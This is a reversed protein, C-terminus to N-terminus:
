RRMRLLAADALRDVERLVVTLTAIPSLPMILTVRELLRRPATLPQYGHRACPAVLPSWTEATRCRRSRRLGTLRDVRPLRVASGNVAADVRDLARQRFGTGATRRGAQNEFRYDRLIGPVDVPTERVERACETASGRALACVDDIQVTRDQEHLPPKCSRTLCDRRNM